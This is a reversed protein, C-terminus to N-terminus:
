LRSLAPGGPEGLWTTAFRKRAAELAAKDGRLRYVEMLGSLAWGNSPTRALSARLVQEAEDRRGARILAAGLSQRVPYYWYPPETYPLGDQIEVAQRYAVIAAPLDGAAEALRGNAVARATQAIQQAPVNADAIPKLAGGDEIEEIAKVERRGAAVDGNRAHGVARAYHWMAKVLAFDDGPDPLALLTEPSSFQVHSFYPAAKVPQMVAFDKLLEAPLSQDLKAAAGLATRGDGGMLASVMVFHINHPYYAGKYVPDSAAGRFYKEDIAIADLNSQLADKYQGVRYYIHSPMHVIHGAGPIQAALRRAYPLAREPQTSAEVAHIYYHSAGPHDPNRKLVSELAAVMEATRGKARAGGAQWYDWPSLDMLAEAFLVQITDNAPFARAADAMADAYAQDLPARDQPPEAAYRRAVARILAQEAPTARAALSSARAAAAAAPAVAAPFMPANINPGLVLAEGWWCMACNPDLQQAARFARAAEAHNFGFTLRMGQDFYAQAKRNGTTVPVHLKGLDPYLPPTGDAAPAPTQQAPQFPKTEAQTQVLLALLPPRGTQAASCVAAGDLM